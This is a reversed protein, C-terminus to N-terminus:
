STVAIRGATGRVRLCMSRTASSCLAPTTFTGCTVSNGNAFAASARPTLSPRCKLPLSMRVIRQFLFCSDGHRAHGAAVGDDIGQQPVADVRDEAQRAHLHVPQEISERAVGVAQLHDVRPM